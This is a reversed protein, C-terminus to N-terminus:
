ARNLSLAFTTFVADHVISMPARSALSARSRWSM